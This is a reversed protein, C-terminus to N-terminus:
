FEVCERPFVCLTGELRSIERRLDLNEQDVQRVCLALEALPPVPFASVM